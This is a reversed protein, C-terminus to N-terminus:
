VCPKHSQFSLSTVTDDEVSPYALSRPLCLTEGWIVSSSSADDFLDPSKDVQKQGIPLLCPTVFISREVTGIPSGLGWKQKQNNSLGEQSKVGLKGGTKGLIPGGPIAESKEENEWKPIKAMKGVFCINFANDVSFLPLALSFCLSKNPTESNGSLSYLNQYCLLNCQKRGMGEWGPFM